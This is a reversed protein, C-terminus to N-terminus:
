GPEHLGRIVTISLIIAGLAAVGLGYHCWASGGVCALSALVFVIDRTNFNM